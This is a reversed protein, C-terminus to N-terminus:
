ERQRRLFERLWGRPEISGPPLSVLRSPELPARNGVYFSNSRAFDPGGVVEVGARSVTTGITVVVIWIRLENTKVPLFELRNWCRWILSNAAVRRARTSPLQIRARACYRNSRM